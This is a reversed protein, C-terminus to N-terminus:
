RESPTYSEFTHDDYLIVIRRVAAGSRPMAGFPLQPNDSSPATAEPAPASPQVQRPTVPSASGFLTFERDAAPKTPQGSTAGVRPSINDASNATNTVERYMPGSDLLLWDPNLRPFKMLMKKLFDFSPKNRGAMLHSIGAPNIELMEALQSPKLGESKMLDLLKERM